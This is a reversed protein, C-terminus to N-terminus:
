VDVERIELVLKRGQVIWRRELNKQPDYGLERLLAAPVSIIRTVAGSSQHTLKRWNTTGYSRHAMAESQTRRAGADDVIWWAHHLSVGYKDHLALYTMGKKYDNVIAEHDYKRPPSSM